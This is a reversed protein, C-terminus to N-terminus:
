LTESLLLNEGEPIIDKFGKLQLLKIGNTLALMEVELPSKNFIQKSYALVLSGRDNRIIGGIGAIGQQLHVLGDFNLMFSFHTSIIIIKQIELYVLVGDSGGCITNTQKLGFSSIFALLSKHTKACSM